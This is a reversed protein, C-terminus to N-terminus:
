AKISYKKGDVATETNKFESQAEKLFQETTKYRSSFHGIILKGANAMKAIKAADLATSHYTKVAWEKMEETFTAEHYLTSVEKITEVVPPHFATDSCFAYSVPPPPPTTLQENPIIKGNETEFDAGQKIARIQAIPINFEQIYEKKINREKIKERFLFGCCNISHKLPFSIVEIVKDEFILEPKKFNLPHFIINFQLGAKLLNLQPQLIEKLQSPSYIHLDNKIGLLNFTSILGILGYYHDGHLHSIFIHRIKGFAIKQRRIQIQTGEGCDILFFRGSANLVQATPYRESTPLASSSGLITLEFAM